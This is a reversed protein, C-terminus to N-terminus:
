GEHVPRQRILAVLGLVCAWLGSGFGAHSSCAGGGKSSEEADEIGTDNEEPDGSDLDPDFPLMTYEYDFVEGEIRVDAAPVVVLFMDMQGDLEVVVEGALGEFVLPHYSVAQGSQTM